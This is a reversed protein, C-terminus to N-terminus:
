ELGNNGISSSVVILMGLLLLTDELLLLKSSQLMDKITAAANERALPQVSDADDSGVFYSSFSDCRRLRKQSGRDHSCFAVSAANVEGNM